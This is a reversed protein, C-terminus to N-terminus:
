KVDKEFKQIEVETKDLEKQMDDFNDVVRPKILEIKNYSDKLGQIYENIEINM